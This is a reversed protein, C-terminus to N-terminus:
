AIRGTRSQSSGPQDARPQEGRPQEGARAWTSEQGQGQTQSGIRLRNHVQSVGSVDEACDEARRKMHRENVTGELTVEGNRV